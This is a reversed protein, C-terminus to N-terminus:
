ECQCTDQKYAKKAANNLYIQAEPGLNFILDLISLGGLFGLKDQRVQRYPLLNDATIDPINHGPHDERIPGETPSEANCVAMGLIDRIEHDWAKALTHLLPFRDDVGTTLMPLFRDIYFEFYPTRGYASELAVRHVDWWAGHTSIRVEDWRCRSTSPKAIPVTLQLTGRVDAITFRHTGKDRKDFQGTWDMDSWRYAWAHVYDMIGGCLRPPLQIHSDPYIVPRM